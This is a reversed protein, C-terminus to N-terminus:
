LIPLIDLLKKNTINVKEGIKIGETKATEVIAYYNINNNDKSHQIETEIKIVIDSMTMVDEVYNPKSGQETVSGKKIIIDPTTYLTYLVAKKSLRLAQKLIVNLVANREKWLNLNIVPDSFRIHNRYRMYAEGIKQAINFGDIIVFDYHNDQTDKFLKLIQQLNYYSNEVSEIASIDNGNDQLIFRPKREVNVINFKIDKFEKRNAIIGSMGDFSIVLASSNPPILSYCNYTKGVGKRGYVVIIKKQIQHIQNIIIEPQKVKVVKNENTNWAMKIM